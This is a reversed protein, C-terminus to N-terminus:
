INVVVGLPRRPCIQADSAFVSLRGQDGGQHQHVQDAGLGLAIRLDDAARHALILRSDDVVQCGLHHRLRWLQARDNPLHRCELLQGADGHARLVLRDAGLALCRVSQRRHQGNKVLQALHAARMRIKHVGDGGALARVCRRQQHDDARLRRVVRVHQGDPKIVGDGAPVLPDDAVQVRSRLVALQGVFLCPLRGVRCESFESAQGIHALLGLAGRAHRRALRCESVQHQVLADLHRRREDGPRDPYQVALFRVSRHEVLFGDIDPQVQRCLGVQSGHHHNRVAFAPM